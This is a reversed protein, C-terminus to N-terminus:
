EHRLATVPNMLTARRVPVVCALAVVTTMLAAITLLAKPNSIYEDALGSAFTRDWALAGAVGLVLGLALPVRVGRLVLMIVHLSRAGLALRVGIERTRLSVGHATVAYLGVMALVLCLFTVTLALYNSVRSNWSADEVAKALTQMRYLPVHADIARAEDRLLSAAGSPDLHSRVMLTAAVPTAAHIPLYVVPGPQPVAQQRISPAVGVITTWVRPADAPANAATLAFRRGIPNADALFMGVFRENVIATAEGPFGDRDAFARGRTLAFGLTDFYGRDTDIVSVSPSPLPRDSPTRGEVEPSRQTPRSSSVPLFTTLTAAVISPHARLREDLRRFFERRDDPTPYQDAPLTIAATMIAPTRLAADTPVEPRSALNGLAVGALLVMALAVEATLFGATWVRVARARVSGSGGNKLVQNVDTRSAQIAPILGFVFVSVFATAVLGAFLRLDLSYDVWYPLVGDPIASTFVRVGGISLALGCAGGVAALVMVEIMLQRILRFRSAGLSTRLAMEPARHLARAMMLNAVNACAVLIVIVGAVIFPMWGDLNGLLRENIPTVRMRLNRNTDPYAAELRAAIAQMEARADSESAEDRLRGFVRLNRADRKQSALGPMQGLPLWVAATSPFGSREPIIGVVTAPSGNVFISRGIVAPDSGYRGRWAQGGLMVVPPAGPRDEQPDPGRGAIPTVGIAALANASLYVADFRDPARDPDGVTVVGGAYAAVDVLSRQEGRIDELDQLSMLRDPARDDFTSIALVRDPREIALGRCKHAYVLTFFLNNVGVGFALVVIATLAFGRDRALLRVAFRADQLMADVLALGRQERYRMKVQDVGGFSRRAALRADAVSLGRALHEDTLLDLHSQLEESLRDDRYRRRVRDLLRSIFTRM